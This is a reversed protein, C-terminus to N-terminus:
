QSRIVGDETERDHKKNSVINSVTWSVKREFPHERVRCDKKPCIACSAPLCGDSHVYLELTEGFEGRILGALADIERHDEHVNLYWPVTLHADLHLVSGFKIMRANHLDVWNESRNANLLTVMHKLLERDSEDMIGAVAARVIKLGAFVIFLAFGIAIAGDLWRIDTIYVLLLGMVIGATTWSDTQLHRGSAVLAVSHNRTGLRVCFYGAIYNVLGAVGILWLGLDLRHLARQQFLSQAAEVLIFGGAMVILAGEVGASIFEIKGHGYPHEADRPKAALTLSYLGFVGAVVNVLGELADTLIAVSRTAFYATLKVAVLMVAIAVVWRQATINQRATSM